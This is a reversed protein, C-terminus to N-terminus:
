EIGRLALAKSQLEMLKFYTGKQEILEEHTGAETLKGDDIVVLKDANKLTSLRHAISLTTRGKVLMNLSKQIAQETETDVSATAEDLILIKPDALIARAISIRQREGGSLSRGSSGIITDYGDPMKCIFDHASALVAASIIEHISADPRAYAINQAVTGMFIYTEQSVMAISKRLDDFSVDKIPVGDMFIEGEQPDYLRSILNVLTSKGAGSRGVVGLMEGAKVEFSIDKLIPKNPEYGFTVKNLTIDGKLNELKVPNPKEQIEPVADIIEFIRQASNISSAWWRFIYSLFDLPGNLQSVYGVFTILIGLEMNTGSLVFASGFGWVVFSAINEVTSYLAYFRNDYAVLALESKRMKENYKAFRTMESNEQGFAKVVRAGTINDNIQGNLSRSARHRRGYFSWLRPLLKWSILTLFPLLILSAIALRWNISIMVVCTLIITLVNIFFYPLGDIFFYTVENADDLVRTMLGGTQRSNYFSISLKGMSRFVQTKINNVVDPVITATLTGQIIGLLQMTLKTFLMTIVVFVLALGFRGAPLNLTELFLENKKLVKDYLITGNLYPWVMNLAATAIYCLMMISIKIKYPTFYSLARFFISRKDMCKPCIKREQDPYLSGCKPCCAHKENLSFDDKTLENGDKMKQFLKILENMEGIYSNSFSSLVVDHNDMNANLSATSVFRQLEIKQIKSNELITISYTQSLNNIEKKYGAFSHVKKHNSPAAALILKTKSLLVFGDAYLGELNMDTQVSYIIDTKRIGYEYLATTLSVPLQDNVYSSIIDKEEKTTDM